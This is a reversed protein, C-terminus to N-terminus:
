RAGATSSTRVLLALVAPVVVTGAHVASERHMADLELVTSLGGYVFARRGTTVPESRAWELLPRASADASGGIISGIADLTFLACWRLDADSVEKSSILEVLGCTLSAAPDFQAVAVESM